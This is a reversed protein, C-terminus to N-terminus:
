RSTQLSRTLLQKGVIALAIGGLILGSALMLRLTIIESLFLIGGVGALAPVALQLIAARTATHFKLAAYWVSYGIGSAFAGSLGALILGKQSIQIHSVLLAFPLLIMPVSRNFNGMTDALSDDSGRGRLSYLGWSIGAAMMFISFVFPPAALGPFVLYIIGGFALFLGLWELLVPREGRYLAAAIMTMQVSGFLILAGTGTTLKLYAISFCIAYAFLFFASVWNGRGVKAKSGKLILSILTLTLAGSTLRVMTFTVADITEDGLAVRCLISNLSFAILAFATYFFARVFNKGPRRNHVKKKMTATIKM